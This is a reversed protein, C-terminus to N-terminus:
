KEPVGRLCWCVCVVVSCGIDMATANIKYASQLLANILRKLGHETHQLFSNLPSLYWLYNNISSHTVVEM